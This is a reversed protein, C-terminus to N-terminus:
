RLTMHGTGIKKIVEKAGESLGMCVATGTAFGSLFGAIAGPALAPAGVVAWGAGVVVGTKACKRAVDIINDQESVHVIGIGRLQDRMDFESAEDM